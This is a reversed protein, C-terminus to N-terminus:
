LQAILSAKMAEVGALRAQLEPIEASVSTIAIQIEEIKAVWGDIKEQRTNLEGQLFDIGQQCLAIQLEIQVNM